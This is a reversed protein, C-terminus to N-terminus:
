VTLYFNLCVCIVCFLLHQLCHIIFLFVPFSLSLSLSIVPFWCKNCLATPFSVSSTYIHLALQGDVCTRTWYSFRYWSSTVLSLVSYGYSAWMYLNHMWMWFIPFVCAYDPACNSHCFRNFFRHLPTIFIWM